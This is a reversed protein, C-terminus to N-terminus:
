PANRVAPFDTPGREANELTLMEPRGECAAILALAHVVEGASEGACAAKHAVRAGAARAEFMNASSTRANALAKTVYASEIVRGIEQAFVHLTARLEDELGDRLALRVQVRGFSHMLLGTLQDLADTYADDLKDQNLNLDSCSLPHPTKM